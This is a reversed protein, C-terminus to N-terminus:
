HLEQTKELTALLTNIIGIRLGSEELAKMGAITTGGPASIQWRINGPHGPQTKALAVAGIMTQLALEKAEDARLGMIIGGEVLSEIMVLIFAPGSGALATIPDIKVEEAWFVLGMGELLHDIKEVVSPCLTDDKAIAIVSEGVTLALNPMCRVVEAGPFADKLTKLETGALISLLIQGKLQGIQKSCAKLDKPKIALLIADAKTAAERLDSYFSGELEDALARGKEESHDCLLLSHGKKACQRAFASGM